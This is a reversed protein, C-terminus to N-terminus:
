LKMACVLFTPGQADSRVDKQFKPSQIRALSHSPAMDVYVRYDVTTGLYSSRCRTLMGALQLHHDHTRRLAYLADLPPIKTKQCSALYQMILGPAETTWRFQLYPLKM